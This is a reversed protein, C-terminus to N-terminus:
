WANDSTSSSNRAFRNELLLCRSYSINRKEYWARHWTLSIDLLLLWMRRRRIYLTLSPSGWNRLMPIRLPLITFCTKYESEWPWDQSQRNKCNVLPAFFLSCLLCPKSIRSLVATESNTMMMIVGQEEEKSGAKSLVSTCQHRSHRCVEPPRRRELKSAAAAGLVGGVASWGQPSWLTCVCKCGWVCVHVRVCMYM